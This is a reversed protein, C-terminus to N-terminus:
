VLPASASSRLQKNDLDGMKDPFDHWNSLSNSAISAFGGGRITAASEGVVYEKRIM